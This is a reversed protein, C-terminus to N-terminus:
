IHVVTRFELKYSGDVYCILPALYVPAITSALFLPRRWAHHDLLLPADITSVLDVLLHVSVRQRILRIPTNSDLYVELRLPVTLGQPNYVRSFWPPIFSVSSRAM